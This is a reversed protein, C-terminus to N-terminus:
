PAPRTWATDTSSRRGVRRRAAPAGARPLLPAAEGPQWTWPNPSPPALRSGLDFIDGNTLNFAGDAAAPNNAAWLLANAVLRADVAERVLDWGRHGPYHLPEGRERLIAAYAGIAPIPNLNNGEATGYIVTPRFTSLGFGADRQKERLYDEQVFYFNPHEIRPERERLPNASAARASTPITSATPRPAPPAPLRAAPGPEGELAARVLNRLM